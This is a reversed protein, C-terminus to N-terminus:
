SARKIGRGLFHGDRDDLADDVDIGAEALV